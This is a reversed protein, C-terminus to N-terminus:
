KGGVLSGLQTQISLFFEPNLEGAPVEFLQHTPAHEFVNREGDATRGKPRLIKKRELMLALFQLLRRSELSLEAGPDALTLFLNEATLRLQRAADAEARGPKFVQVWQCTVAGAPRFNERESELVDHRVLGGAAVGALLTSAVRDGEV